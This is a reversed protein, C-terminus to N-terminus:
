NGLHNGSHNHLTQISTKCNYQELVITTEQSRM